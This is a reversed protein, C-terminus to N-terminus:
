ISMRLGAERGVVRARLLSPIPTEERDWSVDEGLETKIIHAIDRLEAEDDNLLTEFDLAAQLDSPM